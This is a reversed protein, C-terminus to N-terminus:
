EAYLLKALAAYTRSEYDRFVLAVGDTATRVVRAPVHHQELYDNDTIALIAEIEAQPPIDQKPMDVLAGNLSLNKTKWLGTYELDYNVIIDISIEKRAAFRKDSDM